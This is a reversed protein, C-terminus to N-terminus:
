NRHRAPRALWRRMAARRFGQPTESPRRSATAWPRPWRQRHQGADPRQVSGDPSRQGLRSAPTRGAPQDVWGAVGAFCRAFLARLPRSLGARL